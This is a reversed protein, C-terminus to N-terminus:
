KVQDKLKDLHRKISADVLRDETQIIFGGIISPDIAYVPTIHEANLLEKVDALVEEKQQENLELATTIKVSTQHQQEQYYREYDEVMNELFKIDHNNDYMVKILHTIIDHMKGESNLEQSFEYLAKEYDQLSLKM